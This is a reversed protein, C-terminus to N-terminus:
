TQEHELDQEPILRIFDQVILSGVAGGKEQGTEINKLTITPHECCSVVRWVDHGDTTFLDGPKIGDLSDISM